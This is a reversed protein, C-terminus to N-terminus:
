ILEPFKDMSNTDKLLTASRKALTEMYEQAEVDKFFPADPALQNVAAEVQDLKIKFFEKRYNETNVRQPDFASHLARELAPADDSYIIAHTDFLFPVSADGLERIRDMPDLRRTLGIKVVDAGFSGINSIIYVYGSKTKEAMAQARMVRSHAENLDKELAAIQAAFAQLRAGSAKAAEARAKSLLRQYRSEEEEAREMDRQLKQEERQMRALEAREEKEKKLKERYEHTLRLENLKLEVYGATIITANSANLRDLQEKAKQIRREMALANNWRVNAIAAECENNFARLTLRVNRNMMAQGKAVSGDLLWDKTCIVATKLDVMDKQEDRVKEIARKYEESDTFDFHPAYIGIEALALREDYIAIEKVLSDFTQKKMKYEFRLSETDQLIADRQARAEAAMATAERGLAVKKAQIAEVEAQAQRVLADKEKTTALIIAMREAQADAVAAEMDNIAAFRELKGSQEALRAEMQASHKLAAAVRSRLFQIAVVAVFLLIAVIGAAILIRDDGSM